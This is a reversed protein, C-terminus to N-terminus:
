KKHWLISKAIRDIISIYKELSFQRHRNIQINQPNGRKEPIPHTLESIIPMIENKIPPYISDGIESLTEHYAHMIYPLVQVYTGLFKLPKFGDDLKSILLALFSSDSVLYTLLGGMMFFDAGFRRTEWDNSTYGYFLEIPLYDPDGGNWVSENGFQTACGLDSIKAIEDGFILINSPKIDQHAIKAKHLQSLGVLTGHFTQLKWALLPNNVARYKHLNGQALEFILYPIPLTVGQLDHEGYDIATVIRRMKNEACFELLDREYTFDDVLKKLENITSGTARLAYYYNFAKLFAKDGNKNKVTYGSAFAGSKDAGIKNRKKIVLWNGIQEGLLDSAKKLPEM